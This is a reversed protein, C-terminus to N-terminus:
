LDNEQHAQHDCEMCNFQHLNEKHNNLDDQTPFIQDCYQCGNLNKPPHERKMHSTLQDRNQFSQSCTTCVCHEQRECHNSKHTMLNQKQTFGENCKQCTYAFKFHEKNTHDDLTIKDTYTKGCEECKFDRKNHDKMINRSYLIEKLMQNESLSEKLAQELGNIKNQLKEELLINDKTKSNNRAQERQHTFSGLQAVM